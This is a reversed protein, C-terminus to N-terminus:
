LTHCFCFHGKFGDSDGVVVPRDLRVVGAAIWALDRPEGALGLDVLPHVSVALDRPKARLAIGLSAIVRWRIAGQKAWAPM